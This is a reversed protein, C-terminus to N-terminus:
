LSRLGEITESVNGWHTGQWYIRGCRQCTYFDDQTKFVYEPVSLKAKEKDIKDLLVNCITCRTFMIDKNIELNLAKLVEPIQEKVKEKRLLVISLGTRKALHHNRTVIIRGERLAQLFLASNKDAKSYETDIGLIRLWIALKGLEKALLLKM